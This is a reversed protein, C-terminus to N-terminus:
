RRTTTVPDFECRGGTDLQLLLGGQPHVDVIRGSFTRGERRLTVHAGIDASHTRWADALRDDSIPCGEALYGDLQRLIAQAVAVRDVPRSAQLELSTARDRIEPPFHGAHQLCNVGIGIATARIGSNLTRVEMLIGALKRDRVYVDNPWRIVPAVDTAEEIGAVVAVATTMVLRAVPAQVGDECLLVTFTLGAGRPSHWPRGLRGRGETQYEAFVVHGDAATGAEAALTELAYSNTSPVEPLVVIHRGIRRTALGELLDAAQLQHSGGIRSM